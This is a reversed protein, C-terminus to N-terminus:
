FPLDDNADSVGGVTSTVQETGLHVDTEVKQVKWAALTNFYMVKGEKNTHEKGRLNFSVNVFDGVKNNLIIVVLILSLNEKRSDM